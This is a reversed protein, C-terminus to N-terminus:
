AMDADIRAALPSKAPHDLWIRLASAAEGPLAALWGDPWDPCHEAMLSLQRSGVGPLRALALWERAQMAGEVRM